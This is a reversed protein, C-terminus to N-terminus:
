TIKVVKLIFLFNKNRVPCSLFNSSFTVLDTLIYGGREEPHSSPCGIHDLYETGASLSLNYAIFAGCGLLTDFSNDFIFKKQDYWSFHGTRLLNLWFVNKKLTSLQAKTHFNGTPENFLGPYLQWKKLDLLCVKRGQIKLCCIKGLNWHGLNIGRNPQSFTYKQPPM